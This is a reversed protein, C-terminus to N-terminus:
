FLRPLASTKRWKQSAKRKAELLYLLAKCDTTPVEHRKHLTYQSYLFPFCTGSNNSSKVFDIYISLATSILLLHYYSSYSITSSSLFTTFFIPRSKEAAGFFHNSFPSHGSSKQMIIVLIHKKWHQGIEVLIPVRRWFKPLNHLISCSLILTVCKRSRRTSYWRFNANQEFKRKM